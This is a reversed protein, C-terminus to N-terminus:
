RALKHILKDLVRKWPSCLANALLYGDREAKCPVEFSATILRESRQYGSCLSVGLNVSLSAISLCEPLSGALPRSEGKSLTESEVAVFLLQFLSLREVRKGSSETADQANDRASGTRVV